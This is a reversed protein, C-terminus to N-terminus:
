AIKIYLPYVYPEVPETIEKWSTIQVVPMEVGNYRTLAITGSIELWTDQKVGPAKDFETLFGIHSADAVCHTILFRSLVLQNDPLKNEKFVFGSMKIMRGAYKQPDAQIRGYYPEFVDNTMNIIRKKELQSMRHNYEMQQIEKRNVVLEQHDPPLQDSIAAKQQMFLGAGKKAAISANLTQPPLFFGTLLPFILICYSIVRGGSLKSSSPQCCASHSPLSQKNKRRWLRFLQIFGFFFFVYATWLSLLAYNPNVYKTVTGGTHLKLFFLAFAALALAKFAHHSQFAM